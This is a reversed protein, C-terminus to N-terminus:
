RDEGKEIPRRHALSEPDARDRQRKFFPQEVHHEVVFAEVMDHVAVPMPVAGVLDDGAQTFSEGEAPDATVAVVRFPPESGTPRLAVWLSPAGSALNDRYQGTETRYLTLDAAGAYFTVAEGGIALVSWSAALPQGPLVAVPRWNFDTWPSAAKRRELVVGVSMRSLATAANVGTEQHLLEKGNPRKV